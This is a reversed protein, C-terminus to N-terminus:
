KNEKESGSPAENTVDIGFHEALAMVERWQYARKNFVRSPEPIRGTALAYEIRYPQVGLLRVVEGTSYFKKM